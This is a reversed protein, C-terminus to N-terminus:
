GAQVFTAIGDRDSRDVDFLFTIQTVEGNIFAPLTISDREQAWHIRDEVTGDAFVLRRLYQAM